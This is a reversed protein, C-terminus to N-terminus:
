AYFPFSLQLTLTSSALRITPVFSKPEHEVQLVHLDLIVFSCIFHRSLWLNSM